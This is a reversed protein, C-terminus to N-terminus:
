DRKLVSTPMFPLGPTKPPPPAVAATQFFRHRLAQAPKIRQEPDLKLCQDLLDAFDDHLKRAEVDKKADGTPSPLGVALRAKLDKGPQPQQFYMPKSIVKGTLTNTEEGIFTNDPSFHGTPQVAKKIMRSPVKGRCEQIMRLMKNNDQGNFLIRGTYLEFLTCGIAWMDIPYSYAMGIMIEPARYFRSVLMDTVEADRIFMASGLDCIKIYQNDKHVLINDPKLDAHLLEAKELHHLAQFMQRAYTRVASIDLGTNRGHKKLLERLDCELSEFVLCFHKKHTFTHLLRIIPVKGTSDRDQLLKLFKVELQAAKLMTDNQRAIKIAVKTNTQVDDALVVSAFVGKGLSTQISYRGDLIERQIIRLYGDQDDYDHRLGAAPATATQASAPEKTSIPAFMDAENDDDDDDLAFMDFGKPASGNAKPEPPANGPQVGSADNTEHLRHDPRDENMDQNPDYDAASTENVASVPVLPDTKELTFDSQGAPAQGNGSPEGSNQEPDAEPAASVPPAQDKVGNLASSANEDTDLDMLKPSDNASGVMPSGASPQPSPRGSSMASSLAGPSAAVPSMLRQQRANAEAMVEAIRRRKALRSVPAQQADRDPDRRSNNATASSTGSPVQVSRSDPETNPESNHSDTFSRKQSDM